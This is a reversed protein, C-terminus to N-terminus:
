QLGLELRVKGEHASVKGDRVKFVRAPDLGGAGLLAVEVARAREEGLREFESEPVV